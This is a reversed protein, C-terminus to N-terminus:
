LPYEYGKSRYADDMRFIGDEGTFNEPDMYVEDAIHTENGLMAKMTFAHAFLIRWTIWRKGSIEESAKDIMTLHHHLVVTKTDVGYSDLVVFFDPEIRNGSEEQREVYINRLEADTYGDSFDFGIEPVERSVPFPGATGQKAPLYYDAVGIDYALQLERVYSQMLVTTVLSGKSM